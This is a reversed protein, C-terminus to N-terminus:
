IFFFCSLALLSKISLGIFAFISFIHSLYLDLQKFLLQIQIKYNSLFRYFNLLHTTIKEICIIYLPSM